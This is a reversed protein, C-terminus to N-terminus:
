GRSRDLRFTVVANTAASVANGNQMAPEYRWHAKVWGIAAEDLDAHGSSGLVDASVVNGHQDVAIRLRVTGEYGFRVAMPPYPPITHTSALPRAPLTSGAAPEVATIPRTTATNPTIVTPGTPLNQIAIPPPTPNSPETPHALVVTPLRVTPPPAM